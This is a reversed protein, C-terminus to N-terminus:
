ENANSFVEERKLGDIRSENEKKLLGTVRGAAERLELELNRCVLRCNENRVGELIGECYNTKMRRLRVL